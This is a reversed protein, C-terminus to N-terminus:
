NILKITADKLEFQILVTGYDFAHISCSYLVVLIIRNSQFAHTLNSANKDAYPM